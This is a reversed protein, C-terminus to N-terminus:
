PAIEAGLRNDLLRKLESDTIAAELLKRLLESRTCNLSKALANFAKLMETSVRFTVWRKPESQGHVRAKYAVLADQYVLWDHQVKYAPIRGKKALLRIYAPVYGVLAAAQNVTIWGPMVPRHGSVSDKQGSLAGQGEGAM